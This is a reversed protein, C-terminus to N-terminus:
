KAVFLGAQAGIDGPYHNRGTHQLKIGPMVYIKGGISRWLQCFGYDESEYKKNSPNVGVPFFDYFTDPDASMYGDV